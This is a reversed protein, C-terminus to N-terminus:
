VIKPNNLIKEIRDKVTIVTHPGGVRRNCDPTFAETKRYMWATALAEERLHGAVGKKRVQDLQYAVVPAITEFPPTTEMKGVKCEVARMVCPNECSICALNKLVKFRGGAAACDDNTSDLFDTVLKRIEAVETDIETRFITLVREVARLGIEEDMQQIRQMITFEKGSIVNALENIRKEICCRIEMITEISVKRKLQAFNVKEAMQIVYEKIDVKKEDLEEISSKNKAINDANDQVKINTEHQMARLVFIETRLDDLAKMVDKMPYKKREQEYQQFLDWLTDLKKKLTCLQAKLKFWEEAFRDTPYPLHDTLDLDDSAYDETEDSHYSSGLYEEGEYNEGYDLYYPSDLISHRSLRGIFFNERQLARLNHIAANFERINEPTNKKNVGMAFLLRLLMIVVDMQNKVGILGAELKYTLGNRVFPRSLSMSKDDYLSDNFTGTELMSFKDLTEITENVTSSEQAELNTIIDPEPEPAPKEVTEVTTVTTKEALENQVDEEEVDEVSTDPGGGRKRLRGPRYDLRSITKQSFDYSSFKDMDLQQDAINLKEALTILVCHLAFFNVHGPDPSGIALDILSRLTSAGTSM